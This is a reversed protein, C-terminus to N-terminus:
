CGDPRRSASGGTSAGAFYTRTVVTARTSRSSTSSSRACLSRDPLTSASITGLDETATVLADTADMEIQWAAFARDVVDPDGVARGFDADGGPEGWLRLAEEGRM